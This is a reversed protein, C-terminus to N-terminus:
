SSHLDSGVRKPGKGLIPAAMIVGFLFNLSGFVLIVVSVPLPVVAVGAAWLLNVAGLMVVWRGFAWYMLMFHVAVIALIVLQQRYDSLTQLWPQTAVVSFAAFELAIVGVLVLYQYIRPRGHWAVSRRWTVVYGLTGILAGWSLYLNAKALDTLAAVVLGVGVCCLFIGGGYRLPYARSTSM